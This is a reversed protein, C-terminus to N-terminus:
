SRGNKDGLNIKTEIGNEDTLIVTVSESSMKYSDTVNPKKIKQELNNFTNSKNM